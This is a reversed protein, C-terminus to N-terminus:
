ALKPKDDNYLWLIVIYLIVGGYLLNTLLAGNMFIVMLVVMFARTILSKFETIALSDFIKLIIAFFISFIIMGIVGFNMYADGLYGTNPWDGSYYKKGMIAIPSIDYVAKEFLMSFISHSLMVLGNQSFYEYYQFSIQAPLFLTRNIVLATPMVSINGLFLLMSTIISIIIGYISSCIFKNNKIFLMVIPIVITYFIYTKHATLLYLLVQILCMCVFSKKKKKIWCLVIFFVNVITGQWSVLYEMIKFGYNVNGRVKYVNNFNLAELSPIGNLKILFGYTIIAMFFLMLIIGKNASIKLSLNINPLKKIIYITLIFSMSAVFMYLRSENKLAYISTMPIMMIINLVNLAITSPKSEDIPLILLILYTIMYSEFLKLWNINLQFGMYLCNQNLYYIYSLELIIKYITISTVMNIKKRYVSIM